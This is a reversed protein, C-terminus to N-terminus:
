TMEKLETKEQIWSRGSSTWLTEAAPHPYEELFVIERCSTGLLLKVCHVCPSATCYAARIEYVNRCQLLANAEAHIAECEDLAQGSPSRAGACMNPYEISDPCDVHRVTRLENCHPRGAAVGNYGTALVHNRADVLVCGVSRRLCTSRSSVLQAMRLFYKDSTPRM